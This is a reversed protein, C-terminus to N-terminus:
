RVKPISLLSHRLCSSVRLYTCSDRALTTKSFSMEIVGEIGMMWGSATGWSGRAWERVKM